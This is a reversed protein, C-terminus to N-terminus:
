SSTHRISIINNSMFPLHDILQNSSQSNLTLIGLISLLYCIKKEGQKMRNKNLKLQKCRSITDLTGKKVGIIDPRVYKAQLSEAFVRKHCCRLQMFSCLHDIMSVLRM